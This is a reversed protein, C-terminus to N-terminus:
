FMKIKPEIISEGTIQREAATPHLGCLPLKKLLKSVLYM